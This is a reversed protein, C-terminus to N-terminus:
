MSAYTFERGDHRAFLVEVDGTRFLSFACTQLATHVLNKKKRRKRRTFQHIIRVFTCHPEKYAFTIRSCRLTVQSKISYATFILVVDPFWFFLFFSLISAMSFFYTKISYARPIEARAGLSWLPPPLTVRGPTFDAQVVRHM